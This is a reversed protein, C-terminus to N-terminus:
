LAACQARPVLRCMPFCAGTIPWIASPGLLTNQFCCNANPACCDACCCISGAPEINAMAIMACHAPSPAACAVSTAVAAARGNWGKAREGDEQLSHKWTSTLDKGDSQVM